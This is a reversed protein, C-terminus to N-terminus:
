LWISERRAAVYWHRVLVIDARPVPWTWTGEVQQTEWHTPETLTPFTREISEWICLDASSQWDQGPFLDVLILTTTSPSGLAHSPLLFSWPEKGTSQEWHGWVSPQPFM